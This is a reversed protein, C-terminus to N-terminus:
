AKAGQRLKDEPFPKGVLVEYLALMNARPINHCGIKIHDGTYSLITYFGIKMARMDKGAAWAKLLVRAEDASVRVCKSTVLKDGEVWVYADDRNLKSRLLKREEHTFPYKESTYYDDCLTRLFELYDAGSRDKVYKAFLAKTDAARKAAAKRNRAAIEAAAKTIDISEYKKFRRDRLPKAWEECARSLLMSRSEMLRVFTGRNDRTNLMGAYTELEKLFNEALDKPTFDRDGRELPVCVTQFPSAGRLLSIHRGTTSSMAYLSILTIGSAPWTTKVEKPRREKAPIVKAVITSYSYANNGDYSLSCGSYSKTVGYDVGRYYFDHAETSNSHSAM